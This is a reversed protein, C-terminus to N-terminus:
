DHDIEGEADDLIAAVEAFDARSLDTRALFGRESLLCLAPADSSLLAIREGIANWEEHSISLQVPNDQQGTHASHDASPEPFHQDAGYQVYHVAQSLPDVIRATRDPTDPLALVFSSEPGFGLRQRTVGLARCARQISKDSVDLGTVRIAKVVDSRTRPGEKLCEDIVEAVANRDSREDDSAPEALLANATHCSEGLWRVRACGHEESAVLEYRLAPPEVTLNHKYTALVRTQGTEDDPDLAALLGSRVAGIIGISGGGRYLANTGGTKSLHRIVLIAAGTSEALEALPRLAGRIDQDRYADVQSQLYANLPDIIVLRACTTEILARLVDLDRPLMWPIRKPLGEDDLVEVDTLLHIRLADAGAANARPRITDAVGDEASLIIAAACGSLDSRSGDPMPAHNTVRAVLDLTITSKGKDPDGDLVTVKGLPVRGPWLWSVRESEVDALCVSVPQRTPQPHTGNRNSAAPQLSHALAIVREARESVPM